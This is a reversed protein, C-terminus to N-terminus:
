GASRHIGSEGWRLNGGADNELGTVQPFDVVGALEVHHREAAHAEERELADAWEGESPHPVAVLRGTTCRHCRADQGVESPALLAAHGCFTCRYLHETM